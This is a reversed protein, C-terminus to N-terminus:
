GDLGTTDRSEVDEVRPLVTRDAVGAPDDRRARGALQRQQDNVAHEHVVESTRGVEDERTCGEDLLIRGVRVVLADELARGLRDIRGAVRHFVPLDDDVKRPREAHREIVGLARM